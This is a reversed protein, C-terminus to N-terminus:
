AHCKEDTSLSSEGRRECHCYYRQTTNIPETKCPIKLSNAQLLDSNNEVHKGKDGTVSTAITASSPAVENPEKGGVRYSDQSSLNKAQEVISTKASGVSVQPSAETNKKLSSKEDDAIIRGPLGNNYVGYIWAGYYVAFLFKTRSDIVKFIELM